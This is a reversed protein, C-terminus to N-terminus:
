LRNDFTDLDGLLLNGLLVLSAIRANTEGDFRM